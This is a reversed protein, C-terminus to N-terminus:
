LSELSGLIFLTRQEYGGGWPLEMVCLSRKENWIQVIIQSLKWVTSSIPQLNIVSTAYPSEIPISIQSRSHGQVVYYGM